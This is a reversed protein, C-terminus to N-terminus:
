LTLDLADFFAFYKQNWGRVAGCAVACGRLRLMPFFFQSLQQLGNGFPVLFALLGYLAYSNNIFLLLIHSCFAVLNIALNAIIVSAEAM